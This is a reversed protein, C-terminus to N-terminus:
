GHYSVTAFKKNFGAWNKKSNGRKYKRIYLPGSLHKVMRTIIMATTMTSMAPALQILRSKAVKTWPLLGCFGTLLPIM